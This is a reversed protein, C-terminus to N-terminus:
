AHRLLPLVREMARAASAAARELNHQFSDASDGNAADSIARVGAFGLGHAAAVQAIAGSEMDVLHADHRGALRRAAAPDEVFADGTVIRAPELGSGPDEISAFDGDAPDGLPMVGGRFAVFGDSRAAGYDHQIAHSIWFPGPGLNDDLAGAVGMSVLLDCGRAALHQAAMAAHVKGIGGCAVSWGAGHRCSFPVAPDATGEGRMFADAEIDLGTVIGIQRRM